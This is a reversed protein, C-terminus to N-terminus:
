PLSINFMGAFKTSVMVGHEVAAVRSVRLTPLGENRREWGLNDFRGVYVGYKDIVVFVQEHYVAVDDILSNGTIAALEHGVNSWKQQDSDWKHLGEYAGYMAKNQSDYALSQIDTGNALGQNQFSWSEGDDSSLVGQKSVALYYRQGVGLFEQAQLKEKADLVQNWTSKQDDWRFIGASRAAYIVGNFYAVAAADEVGGPLGEALPKFNQGFDQSVLVSGECTLGLITRNAGAVDVYSYNAPAHTRMVGSQDFVYLQQYGADSNCSAENQANDSVAKSVPFYAVGNHYRIEDANGSTVGALSHWINNDRDYTLVRGTNAEALMLQDDVMKLQSLTNPSSYIEKWDKPGAGPALAYVYGKDFSKLDEDGPTGYFGVYITGQQDVALFQPIQAEIRVMDLVYSLDAVIKWSKADESSLIVIADDESMDDAALFFLQDQAVASGGGLEYGSADAIIWSYGKDRSLLFFGLFARIVVIDGKDLIKNPLTNAQTKILIRWHVGGDDSQLVSEELVLTVLDGSAYVAMARSSNLREFTQFNDSSRLLGSDTALYVTNGDFYIDHFGLVAKDNYTVPIIKRHGSEDQTFLQGSEAGMYLLGNNKELSIVNGALVDEMQQWASTVSVPEIRHSKQLISDALVSNLFFLSCLIMGLFKFFLQKIKM